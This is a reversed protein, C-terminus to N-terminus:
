RHSVTITGQAGASNTNSPSCSLWNRNDPTSYSLAYGVSNWKSSMQSPADSGETSSNPLSNISLSISPILIPPPQYTEERLSSSVDHSNYERVSFHCTTLDDSDYIRCTWRPGEWDPSSNNCSQGEERYFLRYGDTGSRASWALTIDVAAYTVSACSLISIFMLLALILLCVQSANFKRYKKRLYGGM